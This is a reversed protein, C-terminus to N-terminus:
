SKRKGFYLFTNCLAISVSLLLLLNRVSSDDIAMYDTFIMAYGTLGAIIYQDKEDKMTLAIVLGTSVIISLGWWFDTVMTSIGLGFGFGVIIWAWFNFSM